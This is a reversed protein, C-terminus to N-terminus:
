GFGECGRANLGVEDGAGRVAEVGDALAALEDGFFEGLGCLRRLYRTGWTLRLEIAIVHLKESLEGTV